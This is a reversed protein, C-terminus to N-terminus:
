ENGIEELRAQVRKIDEVTRPRKMRWSELPGLLGLARADDIVQNAWPAHHRYYLEVTERDHQSQSLHYSVRNM